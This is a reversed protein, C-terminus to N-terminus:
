NFGNVDNRPVFCDMTIKKQIAEDSREECHRTYPLKQRFYKNM